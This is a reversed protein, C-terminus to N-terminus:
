SAVGEPRYSYLLKGSVMSWTVLVGKRGLATFFGGKERWILYEHKNNMGLFNLINKQPLSITQISNFDEMFAIRGRNINYEMLSSCGGTGYRSIM